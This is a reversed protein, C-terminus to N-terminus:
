KECERTLAKYGISAIEEIDRDSLQAGVEAEKYLIFKVGEFLFYKLTNIQDMSLSHVKCSKEVEKEVTDRILELAIDEYKLKSFDELDKRVYRMM